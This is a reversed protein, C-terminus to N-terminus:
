NGAKIDAEIDGIEERMSFASLRWGITLGCAIWTLERARRVIAVALGLAPNGTIATTVLVFAGEQAGLSAPIFFTASRALQAFAEVVWAERFTIPEGLFYFTYYITAVGIVWNLFAFALAAALRAPRRVYFHILRDEVARIHALANELKEALRGRVFFRLVSSSVRLRQVLFFLIIALCFLALGIGAILREADTIQPTYWVLLFGVLLFLVLSGVIITRGLILTAIGEGYAIGHRRKLLIAKMPEGGIHAGPTILNLAEGLMKIQWLRYTWIPRHPLSQFTLQWSITDALFEFAYIALIVAFGWGVQRALQAANAIDATLSVLALAAIGAALYIYKLRLYRKM